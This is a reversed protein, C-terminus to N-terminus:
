REIRTFTYGGTTKIRGELVMWICTRNLGLKRAADRISPYCIGNNDLIPVRLAAAAVRCKEAHEPSKNKGTFNAKSWVGLQPNNTWGKHSISMKKKTEESHRLGSSGDGGETANVLQHGVGKLYEIWRREAENLWEDDEFVQFVVMEPKEGAALLKSVWRSKHTHSERKLVSPRLHERIRKLGRRTQGVYRLHKTIPDVLGYIFNDMYVLNDDMSCLKM